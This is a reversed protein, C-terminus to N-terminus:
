DASPLIPRLDGSVMARGKGLSKANYLSLDARRLIDSRSTIGQDLVCAGITARVVIAGAAGAVPFTLATLLTALLARLRGLADRDTIALVFEDGGPRAVFGIRDAHRALIDATRQLVQDGAQHGYTDNVRKFNDLDLLVVALGDETSRNEFRENLFRNLAARNAIGTLDDVLASRELAREIEYQATVDQCVGVLCRAEGDPRDVEGVNRFRRRRGDVTIIDTEVEYPQGTAIARDIAQMLVMRDNFPYFNLFRDWTPMAAAPDVGFVIRAQRTWEMEATALDLRWSGIDALREVLDFHRLWRAQVVDRRAPALRKIPHRMLVIRDDGSMARRAASM